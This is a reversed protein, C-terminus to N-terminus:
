GRRPRGGASPRRPRPSSGSRERSPLRPPATTAKATTPSRKPAGPGDPAAAHPKSSTFPKPAGAGRTRPGDRRKQPAGLGGKAQPTPTTFVASAQLAKVERPTLERSHGVKLGPDRLPGFQVRALTVVPHGVAECMRRVQRNRGERLTMDVIADAGRPTDLRKLVRVTAPATRHGDLPIGRSLRDIATADPVGRVRARYVKPVEHRPHMLRAALEGDNTLLLLGESDYDLRGVPYLYGLDPPILELVTRRREPDFRTTVMGAPKNVLVYRLPVATKIKKGDVSITDTQPDAKSGLDLVPTGNVAVRGQVILGEAARRSVVGAGSLIKQLRDQM